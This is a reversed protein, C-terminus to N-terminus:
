KQMIFAIEEVALRGKPTLRITQSIKDLHGKECLFDMIPHLEHMGTRFHTSIHTGTKIEGDGFFEEAVSLITDMHALIYNEMERLIGYIEEYSMDGSMPRYYFKEMLGPNLGHAQLIAERTPVVLNSCVEINAIIDAAKLVYYRAYVPDKKVKLWKEIKEMTGLLWNTQSFIAKDADARGVARNEEIYDYLSDDTTYVVKTTADISHGFMGEINKEMGRKLNSRQCLEVNILINDEYIGFSKKGLKQDRVVVTMDVDSKEWVTGHYVSGAVLVAIVNPDSRIKDVFSQIAADYRQEITENM